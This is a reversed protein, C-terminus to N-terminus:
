EKECDWNEPLHERRDLIKEAVVYFAPLGAFENLLLNDLTTRLVDLDIIQESQM